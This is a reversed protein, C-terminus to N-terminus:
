LVKDLEAMFADYADDEKKKPEAYGGLLNLAGGPKARKAEVPAAPVTRRPEAERVVNGLADTEVIKKRKVAAGTASLAVPKQPRLPDITAVYPVEVAEQLAARRAEEAAKLQTELLAQFAREREEEQEQQRLRFVSQQYDSYAGGGGAAVPPPPAGMVAGFDFKVPARGAGLAAAPAAAAAPEYMPQEQKAKKEEHKVRQTVKTHMEMLTRKRKSQVHDVYGQAERQRSSNAVASRACLRSVKAIDKLENLIAEPNNMSAIEKVMVKEEKNRKKEREKEKKRAKDAPNLGKGKGM